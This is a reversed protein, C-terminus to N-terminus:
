SISVKRRRPWWVFVLIFLPPVIAIHRMKVQDQAIDSKAGAPNAPDYYMTMSAGIDLCEARPTPAAHECRNRTIVESVKVTYAQGDAASFSVGASVNLRGGAEYPQGRSVVEGVAVGGAKIIKAYPETIWFVLLLMAAVMVTSGIKEYLTPERRSAAFHQRLLDFKQWM